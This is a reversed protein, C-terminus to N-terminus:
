GAVQECAVQYADAAVAARIEDFEAATISEFRVKDGPSLLAPQASRMDDFLRIPTAGILHWGGPSEVPYIATMNTAIAISGAPVKVRPDTRRPLVLPEPLDGMYPFGPVFGIMYVHFCTEVHRRIVDQATLGTRQAVEALDPAHSTAYCAPIRWLKARTRAAAGDHDLLDRIASTLSASDTLLPDFLVMLSRFTPVTEVIGPTSSARLLASLRLVRDNLARDIRDGFEVVLATDGSILFRVNM